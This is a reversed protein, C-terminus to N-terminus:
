DWDMDRLKMDTHSITGETGEMRQLNPCATLLFYYQKESIFIWM